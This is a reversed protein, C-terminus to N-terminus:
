LETPDALWANPIEHAKALTRIQDLVRRRADTDSKANHWTTGLKRVKEGGLRLFRLMAKLAQSRSESPVHLGLGAVLADQSAKACSLEEISRKEDLLGTDKKVCSRAAEVLEANDLVELAKAFFLDGAEQGTPVVALHSVRIPEGKTDVVGNPHYLFHERRLKELEQDDARVGLRLLATNVRRLSAEYDRALDEWERRQEKVGVDLDHVVGNRMHALTNRTQELSQQLLERDLATEAELANFIGEVVARAQEARPALSGKLAQLFADGCAGRGVGAGGGGGLARLHLDENMQVLLTLADPRVIGRTGTFSRSTTQAQFSALDEDGGATTWLLKSALYTVAIIIFTLMCGFAAAEAEALPKRRRKKGSKANADADGAADRVNTPLLTSSTSSDDERRFQDVLRTPALLLAVDCVKRVAGTALRVAM